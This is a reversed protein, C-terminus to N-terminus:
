TFYGIPSLQSFLLTLKVDHLVTPDDAVLAFTYIFPPGGIQATLRQGIGNIYALV